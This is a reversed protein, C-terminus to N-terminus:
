QSEVQGEAAIRQACRRILTAAVSKKYDESANLDETADIGAAIVEADLEDLSEFEILEPADCIAGIALRYASGQGGPRVLCVTVIPRETISFKQHAYRANEDVPVRFGTLIEGPELVSEYADVIFQTAPVERTGGPGIVVVSADLACLVASIDSRPEAFAINGGITGTARVRANGVHAAAAGLLAASRRILPDAAVERHTVTAGIVIHEDERTVGRLQGVKRLTVLKSPRLLGAAMSALLETGGCYPTAGDSVEALVGDLTDPAAYDFRPLM